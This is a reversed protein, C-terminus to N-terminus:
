RTSRAGPPRGRSAADPLAQAAQIENFERVELTYGGGAPDQALPGIVRLPVSTRRPLSRLREFATREAETPAQARKAARDWQVKRRLPALSVVQGTNGVRLSLAGKDEVLLGEVTAEVGRLTAGLRRERLHRAIHGVDPLRGDAM